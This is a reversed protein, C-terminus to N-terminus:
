LDCASSEIRSLAHMDALDDRDDRSEPGFPSGTTGPSCETGTGTCTGRAHRGCPTSLALEPQGALALAAQLRALEPASIGTLDFVLEGSINRKTLRV